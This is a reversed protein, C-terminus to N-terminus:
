YRKTIDKLILEFKEKFGAEGKSGYVVDIFMKLINELNDRIPKALEHVAMCVPQSEYVVAEGEEHAPVAICKFLTQVAPEEDAEVGVQTWTARSTNGLESIRYWKYKAMESLTKKENIIKPSLIEVVDQYIVNSGVRPNIVTTPQIEIEADLPSPLISIEGTYGEAKLIKAIYPDDNVIFNVKYKQHFM